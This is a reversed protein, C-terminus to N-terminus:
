SAQEAFGLIYGNNDRIYFENMGYWATSLEKVVETKKKIKDYFNEVNEVEIYFSVSAGIKAESFASIDKKLNEEAQFMLEVNGNKVLAYVIKKDEPIDTLIEDQTEPVAMMLQFGLKNIYFQITKKVDKVMLNPNLKKMKAEM